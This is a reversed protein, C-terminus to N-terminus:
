IDKINCKRRYHGNLVMYVAWRDTDKLRLEWFGPRNRKGRGRMVIYPRMIRSRKYHSIIEKKIRLATEKDYTGLPIRMYNETLKRPPIYREGSLKALVARVQEDKSM